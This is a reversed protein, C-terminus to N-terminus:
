GKETMFIMFYAKTLCTVGDYLITVSLLSGSTHYQINPALATLLPTGFSLM